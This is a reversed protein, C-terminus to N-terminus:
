GRTLELFRDFLEAEVDTGLSATPEDLVLVEAEAEVAFLARALAVRQWQGGSLDSGRQYQRSLVTEWGHPMAAIIGDAGARRAARQLAGEDDIAGIAGFGVNERATLEYRVFDQFIVAVRRRWAAPDICRLDVGDVSIRGTAPEYLRTLLKILTTKGAGNAGVIALSRGTPITLDLDTFVNISTGPYAFTV